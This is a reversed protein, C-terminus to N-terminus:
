IQHWLGLTVHLKDPSLLLKEQLRVLFGRLFSALHTECALLWPCASLQTRVASGHGFLAWKTIWYSQMLTSLFVHECVSGHDLFLDWLSPVVHGKLCLGQIKPLQQWCGKTSPIRLVMMVREELSSWVSSQTAESSRLKGACVCSKSWMGAACQKGTGWPLMAWVTACPWIPATSVLLTEGSAGWLQLCSVATDTSM